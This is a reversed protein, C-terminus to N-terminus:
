EFVRDLNKTTPGTLQRYIAATICVTLAALVAGLLSDITAEIIQSPEAPLIQASIFGAIGSLIAQVLSGILAIIVIFLVIMWGNNETIAWSRSIAKLPNM